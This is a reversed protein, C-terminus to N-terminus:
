VIVKHEKNNEEVKLDTLLGAIADACGQNYVFALNQGRFLATNRLNIANDIYQNMIEETEADVM